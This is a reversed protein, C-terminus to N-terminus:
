RFIENMKVKKLDNRIEMTRLNDWVVRKKDQKLCSESYFEVFENM